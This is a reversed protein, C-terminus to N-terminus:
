CTSGQRATPVSTWMVMDRLRVKWLSSPTSCMRIFGTTMYARDARIPDNETAYIIQEGVYKVFHLVGHRKYYCDIVACKNEYYVQDEVPMKEPVFTSKLEDPNLVDPYKELLEERDMMEVLEQSGEEGMMGICEVDLGLRRAVVAVNLGKGGMDVRINRLRNVQGLQIQDIEATKDFSPNLCITTIM